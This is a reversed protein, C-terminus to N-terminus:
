NYYIKLGSLNKKLSKLKTEVETISLNVLGIKKDFKNLITYKDKSRIIFYNSESISNDNIEYLTQIGDYFPTLENNIINLLQIKADKVVVLFNNLQFVEDYIIPFIVKNNIDVIGYRNELSISFYQENEDMEEIEDYILPIIEKGNKDVIGKKNDLSVYYISTYGNEINDYIPPLIEQGLSNILGEKDNLIIKLGTPSETSTRVDIRDFEWDYIPKIIEEAKYNLLGYKGNQETQFFPYVNNKIDIKYKENLSINDYNFPVIIKGHIDIIGFKEITIDQVIYYNQLEVLTEDKSTGSISYYIPKIIVNGNNDIIGVGNKTRVYFFGKKYSLIFNYIPKVIEEGKPNILGYLNDKKTLFYGQFDEEEEWFSIKDFKLNIIMEGKQNIIGILGDKEILFLNYELPEISDYQMPVIENKNEDLIGFLSGHKNDKVITLNNVSKYVHYKNDITKKQSYLVSCFLIM